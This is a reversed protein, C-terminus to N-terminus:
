SCGTTNGCATCVLCPGNRKMAFNGCNICVDGTYGLNLSLEKQTLTEEHVRGKQLKELRGQHGGRRVGHRGEEIAGQWGEAEHRPGGGAHVESAQPNQIADSMRRDTSVLNTESYIHCFFGEDAHHRVVYRPASRSEPFLHFCAVVTGGIQYDGTTKRVREGITFTFDDSM